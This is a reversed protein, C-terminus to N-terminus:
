RLIEDIYVKAMKVAASHTPHHADSLSLGLSLVCRSSLLCSVCSASLEWEPPQSSLLTYVTLQGKRTSGFGGVDSANIQSCHRSCAGQAAARSAFTLSVDCVAPVISSNIHQWSSKGPRYRACFLAAEGPLFLQSAVALLVASHDILSSIHQHAGQWSQVSSSLGLPRAPQCVLLDAALTVSHWLWNREM